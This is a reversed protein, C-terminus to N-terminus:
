RNRYFIGLILIKFKLINYNDERQKTKGILWLANGIIPLPKPGPIQKALSHFYFNHKWHYLYILILVILSVLIM